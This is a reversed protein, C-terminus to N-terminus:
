EKVWCKVKVGGLLKIIDKEGYQNAYYIATRGLNNSLNIDVGYDILLKV